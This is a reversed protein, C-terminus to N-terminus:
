KSTKSFAQTERLGNKELLYPVGPYPGKERDETGWDRLVYNQRGIQTSLDLKWLSHNM